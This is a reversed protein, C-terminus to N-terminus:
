KTKRVKTDSPKEVKPKEETKEVTPAKVQEVKKPVDIIGVRIM